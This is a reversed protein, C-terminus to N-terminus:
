GPPSELTALASQALEVISAPEAAGAARAVDLKIGVDKRLVGAHQRM